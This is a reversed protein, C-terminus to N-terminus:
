ILKLVSYFGYFFYILFFWSALIKFRSLHLKHDTLPFCTHISHPLAPALLLTKWVNKARPATTHPIERNESKYEWTIGSYHARSPLFHIFCYQSPNATKFKFSSSNLLYVEFASTPAEWWSMFVGDSFRQIWTKFPIKWHHQFATSSMASVKHYHFVVSVRWWRILNIQYACQVLLWNGVQICWM